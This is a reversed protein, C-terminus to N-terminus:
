TVPDSALPTKLTAAKNPVHGRARIARQYRTNISKITNTTRIMSCGCSSGHAGPVTVPRSGWSRGSGTVPLARNGTDSYGM